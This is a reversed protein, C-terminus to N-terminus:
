NEWGGATGNISSDLTVGTGATADRFKPPTGEVFVAHGNNDGAGAEAKNGVYESDSGYIIGNTKKFTGNNDVFVGGGHEKATNSSIAGGTMNFNGRKHVFVGGGHEEVTNGFIKGTKELTFSGGEGVCVGGGLKAKINNTIEGGSMTFTGDGLHVGGGMGYDENIAENGSIKGDYMLFSGNNAVLVGGGVGAVNGNIIGKEDDEGAGTEEGLIFTGGWVYVGGGGWGLATATNDCITGKKMLFIGDEGVNVGGGSIATNSDIKGGEMIFSAKNLVQVGGGSSYELGEAKNKFINGDKMTFKGETEVTVGGGFKATNDTIKGGNMNFTGDAILNVEDSKMIFVGGGSGDSNNLYIDGANMEFTGGWVFVGGGSAESFTKNKYIAGANMEFTGNCGVFVGGGGIHNGHNNHNETIASEKNMVLKGDGEVIVLPMNNNSLGKLTVDELILTVGYDINFMAGINKLKVAGGILTITVIKGKYGLRNGSNINEENGAVTVIYKGGNVANSSLWSLKAALNDGPVNLADWKAYLTISKIIPTEFNYLQTLEDDVYWGSFSGYNSTSVVPENAQENNFVVQDPVSSGGKSDFKVLHAQYMPITLINDQGAQLNVDITGAACVDNGLWSYVWVTWNGPMIFSVFTEEGKSKFNITEKENSFVIKHELENLRDIYNYKYDASRGEGGFSIVVKALDGQWQSCTSLVFIFLIAFIIFKISPNKM